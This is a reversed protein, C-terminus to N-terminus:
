KTLKAREEAEDALCGAFQTGAVTDVFNPPINTGAVVCRAYQVCYAEELRREALYYEITLSPMTGKAVDGGKSAFFAVKAKTYNTLAETLCARLVANDNPTEAMASSSAAIAVIIWLHRM